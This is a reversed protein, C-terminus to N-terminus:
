RAIGGLQMHGTGDDVKPRVDTTGTMLPTHHVGASNNAPTARFSHHQPTRCGQIRLAKIADTM